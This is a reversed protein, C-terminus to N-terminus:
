ELNHNHRCFWHLCQINDKYLTVAVVITDDLTTLSIHSKKYDKKQAMISSFNENNSVDKIMFEGEADSVVSKNGITIHVERIPDQSNDLVRGKLTFLQNDGLYDSFSKTSNNQDAQNTHKQCSTSFLMCVILALWIYM